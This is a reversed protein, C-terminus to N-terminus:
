TDLLGSARVRTISYRRVYIGVRRTEMLHDLLPRQPKRSYKLYSPSRRPPTQCQTLRMGAAGTQSIRSCPPGFLTKGLAPTSHCSRRALTRAISFYWRANGLFRTDKIDGEWFYGDKINWSSRCARFADGAGPAGFTRISREFCSQLDDHDSRCRPRRPASDSLASASRGVCCRPTFSKRIAKSPSICIVCRASGSNV